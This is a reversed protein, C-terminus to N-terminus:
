VQVYELAVEERVQTDEAGGSYQRHLFIKHIGLICRHLLFEIRGLLVETENSDTDSALFVNRLTIALIHSTFEVLHVHLILVIIIRAAVFPRHPPLIQM